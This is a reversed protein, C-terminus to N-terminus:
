ILIIPMLYSVAVWVMDDDSEEKKEEKEQEEQEKTLAVAIAEKGAPLTVSAPAVTGATGSNSILHQM